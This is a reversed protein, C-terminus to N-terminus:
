FLESIQGPITGIYNTFASKKSYSQLSAPNTKALEVQKSSGIICLILSDYTYGPIKPIERVLVKGPLSQTVKSLMFFFM